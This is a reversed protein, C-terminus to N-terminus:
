NIFRQKLSQIAFITALMLAINGFSILVDNIIISATFLGLAVCQLVFKRKGSSVAGGSKTFHLYTSVVDCFFLIVLAPMWVIDVFVVGMAVYFLIKDTLPDLIEGLRSRQNYKRAVWGDLLDPLMGFLFFIAAGIMFMGSQTAIMIGLIGIFGRSVTICNPWTIIKQM